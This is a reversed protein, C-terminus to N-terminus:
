PFSNMIRPRRVSPLSTPPFSRSISQFKSAFSVSKIIISTVHHEIKSEIDHDNADFKTSASAPVIKPSLYWM